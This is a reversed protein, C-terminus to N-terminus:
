SEKTAAALTGTALLRNHRVYDTCFLAMEADTYYLQCLNAMITTIRINSVTYGIDSNIRDVSATGDIFSIVRGTKACRGNQERLKASIDCVTLDVPIERNAANRRLMTMVKAPVDFRKDGAKDTYGKWHASSSGSNRGINKCAGTYAIGLTSAKLSFNRKSRRLDRALSDSAGELPYRAKLTEIDSNSWALNKGFGIKSAFTQVAASTRGLKQAVSAAGKTVYDAKLLAIDDATWEECTRTVGLKLARQKVSNPSRDIKEGIWMPSKSTYHEVVFADHEADWKKWGKKM